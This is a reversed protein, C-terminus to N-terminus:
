LTPCQFYVPFSCWFQSFWSSFRHDVETSQALISTSKSFLFTSRSVSSSSSSRSRWGCWSWRWRVTLTITSWWFTSAATTLPCRTRRCQSLFPHASVGSLNRSSTWCLWRWSAATRCLVLFFWWLQFYVSTVRRSLFSFENHLTMLWFLDQCDCHM